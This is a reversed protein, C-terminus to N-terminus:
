ERDFVFTAKEDRFIMRQGDSVATWTMTDADHTFTFQYDSGNQTWTGKLDFTPFPMDRVPTTKFDPWFKLYAQNDAAVIMYTKAYAYALHAKEEMVEASNPLIKPQSLRLYAFSVRTNYDWQGLIPIADYKPSKGTQLYTNLDDMNTSVTDWIIHILDNNQSLSQIVPENLLQSFTAHSSWDNTFGSNETIARIDDRQLLSTFAPYKALRVSLEPNQCITGALNALRYYDAPMTGVSPAVKAFGTAQDGTALSNVLRTTMPEGEAPAVQVSWFGLNFIIFSLLVMYAAGNLFGICIGLRSNLRKWINYELESVSHKHLAESRYQLKMGIGKFIALIILFALVPAVMWAETENPLGVHQLLPKLLHGIPGALLAAVIIGVFSIASAIVGQRWALGVAGGVVLFTLIWISM